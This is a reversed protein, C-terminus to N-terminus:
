GNKLTKSTNGGLTSNANAVDFNSNKYNAIWWMAYAILTGIVVLNSVENNPTKNLQILIFSYIFLIGVNGIIVLLMVPKKYSVSQDILQLFYDLSASVLIAIGYTILNQNLNNITDPNSNTNDILYPIIVGIASLFGIAFIFYLIITFNRM